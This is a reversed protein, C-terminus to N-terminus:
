ASENFSRSMEPQSRNVREFASAVRKVGELCSYFGPLEEEWLMRNKAPDDHLRLFDVDAGASEWLLGHERLWEEPLDGL